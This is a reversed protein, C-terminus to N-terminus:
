KENSEESNLPIVCEEEFVKCILTGDKLEYHNEIPKGCNKCNM